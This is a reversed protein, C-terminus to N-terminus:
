PRITLDQRKMFITQFLETSSHNEPFDITVRRERPICADEAPTVHFQSQKINGSQTPSPSACQLSWEEYLKMQEKGKKWTLNFFGVFGFGLINNGIHKNKGSFCRKSPPDCVMKFLARHISVRRGMKISSNQSVRNGLTYQWCTIKRQLVLFESIEM